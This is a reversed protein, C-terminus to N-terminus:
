RSPMWLARCNAACCFGRIKTRGSSRRQQGIQDKQRNGHYFIIDKFKRPKGIDATAYVKGLVQTPDLSFRSAVASTTWRQCSMELTVVADGKKNRGVVRVPNDFM